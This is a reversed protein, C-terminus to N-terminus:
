EAHITVSNDENSNLVLGRATLLETLSLTVDGGLRKALAIIIRGEQTMERGTVEIVIDSNIATDKM